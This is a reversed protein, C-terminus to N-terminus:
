FIYWPFKGEAMKKIRPDIVANPCKGTLAEAIARLSKRSYFGPDFSIKKATLSEIQWALNAGHGHSHWNLSTNRIENWNLTREKGFFLQQSITNNDIIIKKKSLVFFLLIAIFLVSVAVWPMVGANKTDAFIFILLLLFATIIYLPLKRVSIEQYSVPIM